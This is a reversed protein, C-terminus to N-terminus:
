FPLEKEGTIMWLRIWGRVIRLRAIERMTGRKRVQAEADLLDNITSRGERYRAREIRLTERSQVVGREEVRFADRGNEIDVTASTVDLYIGQRAEELDYRLSGVRAAMAAAQPRRTGSAFPAWTLSFSIQCWDNETYSSPENWVWAAEADLRPWAGAKVAKRRKELATIATKLAALDPRKELAKAFSESVSPSERNVLDTVPLPELPGHHNVARALALLAIDRSRKLEGMEQLAQDRALQIKLVDAELARGVRVMYRIEDLRATLSKLFAKTAKIRADIGLIDLCSVGAHAAMQRHIWQARLSEARAEDRAAPASYLLGAPDFIPQSVKVTATTTNQGGVPFAGLPTEMALDRDKWSRSAWSSIVPWLAKRRQAQATKEAALTRAHAAAVAPRAAAMEMAEPLSVRIPRDARALPAGVLIVAMSIVIRSIGKGMSPLRFSGQRFMIRYLAPVVVLTLLTSALLGSIMASALPLWLTSSSLGLPLLGAVTTATTLLIPRIRRSVADELAKDVDAGQHRRNEVVELLVIANNVVIGVLAIVGLMSMFGFPQAGILLGPVVGAAALPVTVLIIFMRRFSNFEALLVALLLLLGMPLSKLLANNAEGSGEADGGFEMDVDTPLDMARIRPKLKALIDSFTYGEMLQSSVTVVRRSNWHRIAAPRWVTELGALQALPILRGDPAAVSISELDDVPLNEGASSRIVVPVPDEGVHLEGIPLGRTRGYLSQALDARSVGYRSAAADNIKFWITPVGPGLDHRVDTVGTIKKLEGAVMAATTNLNELDNGYIRVEVPAGVPPGQELKRAVLEMGPLEKKVYNRAWDLLGTLDEANQTEVILQALHPSYPIRNINYYFKPVSRGM